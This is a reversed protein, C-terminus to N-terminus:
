ARNAGYSGQLLEGRRSANSACRGMDISHARRDLIEEAMLEGVSPGIRLGHGSFGACMYFGDVGDVKGLIPHWDTSVDYLGTYANMLLAKDFSPVRAMLRATAEEIFAM